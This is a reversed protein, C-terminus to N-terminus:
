DHDFLSPPLVAQVAREVAPGIDVRPAGVAFRCVFEVNGSTGTIPSPMLELMAAGSEVAAAEVEALVRRWIAPDTIVGRGKSAEQKGAEFQPKVLLLLPVGADALAVVPALIKRLSIFSVDGVVLDLPEPLQESRVQRIDTQERVIVRKNSRLREHLQNTGVDVAYVQKAGRQLLCDTFGGTSSGVDLCVLGAPDIAWEDLAADLKAGARSVFPPPPALLSIADSPLVQRAPKDALAGGVLVKADDILRRAAERSPVLQRRVM